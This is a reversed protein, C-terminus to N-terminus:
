AGARLRCLTVCNGTDNFRVWTMYGRMLVLGRGSPRELNEPACPDPVDSPDFGPGQDEIEALLCESTLHYRLHVEKSPDGKHGHKIANVLAEELALRVGFTEKNSYGADDLATIIHEIAPVIEDSVHLTRSRWESEQCTRHGVERPCIRNPASVVVVERM